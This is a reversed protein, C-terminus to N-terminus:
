LGRVRFFVRDSKSINSSIVIDGPYFDFYKVARGVEEWTRFDSSKELVYTRGTDGGVVTVALSNYGLDQLSVTVPIIGPREQGSGDVVTYKDASGIGMILKLDNVGNTIYSTPIYILENEHDLYTAEMEPDYRTDVWEVGGDPGYYQMVTWNVGGDVHYPILRNLNMQYGSLDPIVYKSGVKPFKFVPNSYSYFEYLITPNGWLSIAGRAYAYIYFEKEFDVNTKTTNLAMQMAKSLRDRFVVDVDEKTQFKLNVDLTRGPTVNQPWQTILIGFDFHANTAAYHEVIEASGFPLPQNLGSAPIIGAQGIFNTLVLLTMVLLRIANKM